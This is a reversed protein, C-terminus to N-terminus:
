RGGFGGKSEGRMHHMKKKVKSETWGMEDADIRNKAMWRAGEIPPVLGDLTQRRTLIDAEKITRKWSDVSDDIHIIYNLLFLISPFMIDCVRTCKLSKRQPIKNSWSLSM